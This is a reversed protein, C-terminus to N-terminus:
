HDERIAIKQFAIEDNMREVLTPLDRIKGEDLQNLLITEAKKIAAINLAVDECLQKRKAQEVQRIRAAEGLGGLVITGAGALVLLAYVHKQKM